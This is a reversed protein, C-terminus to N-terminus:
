FVSGFGLLILRSSPKEGGMRGAEEQVPHWCADGHCLTRFPLDGMAGGPSSPISADLRQTPM